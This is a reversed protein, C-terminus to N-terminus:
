TIFKKQSSWNLNFSYLIFTYILLQREESIHLFLDFSYPFACSVHMDYSIYILKMEVSSIAGTM